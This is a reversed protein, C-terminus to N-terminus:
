IINVKNAHTQWSAYRKGADISEVDDDDEISSQGSCRDDGDDDDICGDENGNVSNGKEMATQRRKSTWRNDGNLMSCVAEKGISQELLRGEPQPRDRSRKHHNEDNDQNESFRFDDVNSPDDCSDQLCHQHIFKSLDRGDNEVNEEDSFNRKRVDEEAYDLEGNNMNETSIHENTWDIKDHQPHTKQHRPTFQHLHQHHFVELASEEHNISNLSADEVALREGVVVVSRSSFQRMVPQIRRCQPDIPNAVSEQQWDIERGKEERLTVEAPVQDSVTSKYDMEEATDTYLDCRAGNM